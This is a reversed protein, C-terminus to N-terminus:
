VGGKASSYSTRAWDQTVQEGSVDLASAISRAATAMVALETRNSAGLKRMISSVHSKITHISVGLERAIVKNAKGQRVLALVDAERDSISTM